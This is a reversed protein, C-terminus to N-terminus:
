IGEAGDGLVEDVWNIYEEAKALLADLNRKVAEIEADLEEDNSIGYVNSLQMRLEQEEKMYLNRSAEAQYKAKQAADIRDKLNDLTHEVDNM